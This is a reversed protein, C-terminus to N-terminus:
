RLWEPNKRAKRPKEEETEGAWAMYKLRGGHGSQVLNKGCGTLTNFAGLLLCWHTGQFFRSRRMCRAAKALPQSGHRLDTWGHNALKFFSRGGLPRNASSERYSSQRVLKGTASSGRQGHKGIFFEKM